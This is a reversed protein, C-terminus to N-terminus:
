RSTPISRRSCRIVKDPAYSGWTLLRLTEAGATGATTLMTATLLGGVLTKFNIM